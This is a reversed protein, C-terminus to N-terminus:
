RIYRKPLAAEAHQKNRSELLQKLYASNEKANEKDGFNVGVMAAEQIASDIDCETLKNQGNLTGSGPRIGTKEELFDEVQRTKLFNSLISLNYVHDKNQFKPDEMLRTLVLATFIHHQAAKDTITSLTEDDFGGLIKQHKNGKPDVEEVTFTKSGEDTFIVAKGKKEAQRFIDDIFRKRDKKQPLQKPTVIAAELDMKTVIHRALTTKHDGPGEILVGKTKNAAVKTYGAIVKEIPLPTSAEFNYKQLPFDPVPDAYHVGTDTHLEESPSLTVEGHNQNAIMIFHKELAPFDIPQTNGTRAAQGQADTVTKRIAESVAGSMLEYRALEDLDATSIRGLYSAPDTHKFAALMEANVINGDTDEVAIGYDNFRRLAIRRRSKAEPMDVSIVHEMRAVVAPHVSKPEVNSTFIVPLGSNKILDQFESREAGSHIRSSSPMEGEGYYDENKPFLSDFEDLILIVDTANKYKNVAAKAQAIREADTLAVSQKQGNAGIVEVNQGVLIAKMGCKEALAIAAESKGSRTPGVMMYPLGGSPKTTKGELFKKKQAIFGAIENPLTEHFQPNVYDFDEPWKLDTKQEAGFLQKKLADYTNNPQQFLNTYLKSFHPVNDVIGLTTEEFEILGQQRLLSEPGIIHKMEEPTAGIMRGLLMEMTEQKGDDGFQIFDELFPVKKMTDLLLILRYEKENLGLDKAMAQINRHFHPIEQASKKENAEARHELIASLAKWDEPHVREGMRELRDHVAAGYESASPNYYDRYPHTTYERQNLRNELATKLSTIRGVEDKSEPTNQKTLQSIQKILEAKEDILPKRKRNMRQQYNYYEQRARPPFRDKNSVNSSVSYLKDNEALHCLVFATVSSQPTNQVFSELYRYALAEYYTKARDQAFGSLHLYGGHAYITTKKDKGAM